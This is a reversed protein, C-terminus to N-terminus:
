RVKITGGIVQQENRPRGRARRGDKPPLAAVARHVAAAEDIHTALRAYYSSAVTYTTPNTGYWSETSFRGDLERAWRPSCKLKEETVSLRQSKDFVDGPM